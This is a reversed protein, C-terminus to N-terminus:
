TSGESIKRRARKEEVSKRLQKWRESTVMIEKQLEKQRTNEKLRRISDEKM